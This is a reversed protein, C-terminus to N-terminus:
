LKFIVRIINMFSETQVLPKTKSRSEINFQLEPKRQLNNAHNKIQSFPRLIFYSVLLGMLFVSVVFIFFYPLDQLLGSFISDFFATKFAEDRIFGNSIFFSYNLELFIYLSYALMFICILPAGTLMFATRLYYKSDQSKFLNLEKKM